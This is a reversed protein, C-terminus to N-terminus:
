KGYVRVLMSTIVMALIFAVILFGTIRNRRKVADSPETFGDQESSEDNHQAPENM